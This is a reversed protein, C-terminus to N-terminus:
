WKSLNGMIRALDRKLKENEAVLEDIRAEREQLTRRHEELTQELQSIREALRASHETAEARLRQKEDLEQRLNVVRLNVDREKSTTQERLRQAEIEFKEKIQAGREHFTVEQAKLQIQLERNETELEQSRRVREESFREAEKRHAGELDLLQHLRAIEDRQRTIETKYRSATLFPFM